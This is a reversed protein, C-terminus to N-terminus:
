DGGRPRLLRYIESTAKGIVLHPSPPIRMYNDLVEVPYHFSLLQMWRLVLYGTVYPVLLVLTVRRPPCFRRLWTRLGRRVGPLRAAAKAPHSANPNWIARLSKWTRQFERLFGRGLPIRGVLVMWRLTEKLFRLLRKMM